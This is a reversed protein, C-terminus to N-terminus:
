LLYERIAYAALHIQLCRAERFLLLMRLSGGVLALEMSAFVVPIQLPIELLPYTHSLTKWRLPVKGIDALKSSFRFVKYLAIYISHHGGARDAM